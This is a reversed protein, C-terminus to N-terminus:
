ERGAGEAALCKKCPVAEWRITWPQHRKLNLARHPACVIPCWLHLDAEGMRRVGSLERRLEARGKPTM